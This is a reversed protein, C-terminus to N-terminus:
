QKPSIKESRILCYLCRASQKCLCCADKPIRPYQHLGTRCLHGCNCLITVVETHDSRKLTECVLVYRTKVDPDMRKPNHAISLTSILGDNGIFM